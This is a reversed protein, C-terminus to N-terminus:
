DKVVELLKANIPFTEGRRIGHEGPWYVVVTGVQNVGGRCYGTVGAFQKAYETRVRVRTGKKM